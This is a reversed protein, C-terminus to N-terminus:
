EDTNEEKEDPPNDSKFRNKAKSYGATYLIILAGFIILAIGSILLILARDTMSARQSASTTENDTTTSTNKAKKKSKNSQNEDDFQMDFKTSHEQAAENGSKSSRYRAAKTSRKNKYKYKYRNKYKYRLTTRAKNKTTKPAKTTQKKTTTKEPKKLGVTDFVLYRCNNVFLFTRVKVSSSDGNYQIYTLVKGTDADLYFNYGVEFVKQSEGFEDDIGNETVGFTYLGEKAAVEYQVRIDDGGDFQMSSESFSFRNYMALIDNDKIYSATGSLHNNISTKNLEVTKVGTARAWKADNLYDSNAGFVTITGPILCLVLVFSIIAKLRHIQM